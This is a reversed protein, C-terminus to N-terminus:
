KPYCQQRAISDAEREWPRDNYPYNTPYPTGKHLFRGRPDYGLEDYYFQRVHVLEHLLTLVLDQSQYMINLDIMYHYKDLKRTIGLFGPFLPAYDIYVVPQQFVPGKFLQDCLQTVDQTVLHEVKDTPKLVQSYALQSTVLLLLILIKNFHSM